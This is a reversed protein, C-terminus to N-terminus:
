FPRFPNQDLSIIYRNQDLCVFACLLGGSLLAHWRFLIDKCHQVDLPKTRRFKAPLFCLPPLKNVGSLHAKIQPLGKIYLSVKTLIGECVFAHSIGSRQIIKFLEMAMWQLAKIGKLAKIKFKTGVTQRDVTIPIRTQSKQASPTSLSMPAHLEALFFVFEWSATHKKKDCIQSFSVNYYCFVM